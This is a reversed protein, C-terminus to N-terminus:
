IISAEFSITIFCDTKIAPTIAAINTTPPL